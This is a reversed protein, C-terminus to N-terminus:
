LQQLKEINLVCNWCIDNPEQIFTNQEGNKWNRLALKIWKQEVDSCTREADHFECKNGTNKHTWDANYTTSNFKIGGDKIGFGAGIVDKDPWQKFMWYYLQSHCTEECDDNLVNKDEKLLIYGTKCHYGNLKWDTQGKYLYLVLGLYNKGIELKDSQCSMHFSQLCIEKSGKKNKFILKNNKTDELKLMMGKSSKQKSKFFLENNIDNIKSCCLRSQKDLEHFNNQIIYDDFNVDSYKEKLKNIVEEIKASPNIEIICKGGQKHQIVCFVSISKIVISDDTTEDSEGFLWSWTGGM